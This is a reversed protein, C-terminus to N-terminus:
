FIKLRRARRRECRPCRGEDDLPGYCIGCVVDQEPAEVNRYDFGACDHEPVADGVFPLGCVSCCVVKPKM